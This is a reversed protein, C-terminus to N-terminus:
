KLRMTKSLTASTQGAADIARVLITYTGAKLKPLRLSWNTGLVRAPVFLTRARAVTTRRFRKGILGEIRKGNAIYVAIQVTAKDNVSSSTDVVQGTLTQWATPSAQFKRCAKKSLKKACAPIRLTVTPPHMPPEIIAAPRVTISYTSSAVDALMDTASLTVTYTGPATFTHTPSAGSVLASGDGFSWTPQGAALPSWFDAFLASFSVPVGVTTTSPVNASILMPPSNDYDSARLVHGPATYFAAVGGLGDDVLTPSGYERDPLDLDIAAEPWVSTSLWRASQVSGNSPEGPEGGSWAFYADDNIFAISGSRAEESLPSLCIQRLPYTTLEAAAVCSESSSEGQLAYLVYAVPYRPMVGVAIPVSSAGRIVLQQPSSWTGGAGEGRTTAWADQTEPFGGVYQYAIVADGDENEGLQLADATWQPASGTLNEEPGWVGSSEPRRATIVNNRNESETTGEFFRQTYAATLDGGGDFALLLDTVSEATPSLRVPAQWSGSVGGAPHTAVELLYDPQKHTGAALGNFRQIGVAAVGSTSIALTMYEPLNTPHESDTALTVPPEWEDSGAPRYAAHYSYLATEPNNGELEIWTAVAAGGPAVAVQPEIPISSGTSAITLQDTYTGAPPLIGFHVTTQLPALSEVQMFAETATGGNQYRVEDSGSVTAPVPFNIPAVWGPSASASEPLALLALAAALGVLRSSM